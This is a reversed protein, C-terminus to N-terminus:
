VYNESPCQTYTKNNFHYFTMKEFRYHENIKGDSCIGLTILFNDNIEFAIFYVAFPKAIFDGSDRDTLMGSLDKVPLNSEMVVKISNINLKTSLYEIGLLKAADIDVYVNDCRSFINKIRKEIKIWGNRYKNQGWSSICLYSRKFSSSDYDL